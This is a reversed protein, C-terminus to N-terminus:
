PQEHRMTLIEGCHPCCVDYGGGDNKRLVDGRMVLGQVTTKYEAGCTGCGGTLQNGREWAPAKTQVMEDPHKM